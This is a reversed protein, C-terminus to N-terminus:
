APPLARRAASLRKSEVREAQDLARQELLAFDTARLVPSSDRAAQLARWLLRKGTIGVYIAELAQVLRLLNEEGDVLGLKLRSFKEAMWAGANRMGSPEFHLATIINHLQQRDAEVDTQLKRFFAPLDDAGAHLNRLHEILELAGVAGAYHDQLYTELASNAPEEGMRM